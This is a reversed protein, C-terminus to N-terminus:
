TVLDAPLHDLRNQYVLVTDEGSFDIRTIGTNNMLFWFGDRRDLGLIALLFHNYFGGHSVFAVRDDSNGHRTILKRLVRRGREVRAEYEEFPRNWWGGEDLTDPLILEPHHNEFYARNKGAHGIPEGTDEDYYFIGGTEHIDEWVELPLGLTRAIVEGTAIARVMLSTYVHTIGYGNRNQFDVEEPSTLVQGSKLTQALLIVQKRGTETLEPDKRRKDYNGSTYLANNESQAHRIYYLQM